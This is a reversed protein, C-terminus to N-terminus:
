VKKHISIHQHVGPPLMPDDSLVDFGCEGSASGGVENPTAGSDGYEIPVVNDFCAINGTINNQVVENADADGMSNHAVFVNGHVVNRLAGFWCSELGIVKVGGGITNGELDSYPPTGTLNPNESWPAPAPLAFCQNSAPVGEVDRGGGGGLLSVSGAITTSHILMALAGHGTISGGVHDDTAGLPPNCVSPGCGLGLVAGAWVNISGTVNVTGPLATGPGGSAPSVADLLAGPAITLNGHINVVGSPVYCVGKVVVSGYDGPAINGGTCEYLPAASVATAGLLVGSVALVALPIGKLRRM